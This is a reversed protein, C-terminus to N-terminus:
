SGRRAGRRVDHDNELLLADLELRELDRHAAGAALGLRPAVGRNCKMEGDAPLPGVVHLHPAGDVQRELLIAGDDRREGGVDRDTVVDGNGLRTNRTDTRAECDCCSVAVSSLRPGAATMAWWVNAPASSPRARRGLPSLRTASASAPPVSSPRGAARACSVKCSSM